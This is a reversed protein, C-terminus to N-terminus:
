RSRAAFTIMGLTAGEVVELKTDPMVTLRDVAEEGGWESIALGLRRLRESTVEPGEYKLEDLLANLGYHEVMVGAALMSAAFEGRWFVARLLGQAVPDRRDLLALALEVNLDIAKTDPFAESFILRDRQVDLRRVAKVALLRIPSHRDNISDRLPAAFVSSGRKIAGMLLLKSVLDPLDDRRVLPDLHPALREDDAVRALAAVFFPYDSDTPDGLVEILRAEATADGRRARAVWATARVDAARLPDTLSKLDESWVSLSSSGCAFALKRQEGIKGALKERVWLRDVEGGSALLAYQADDNLPDVALIQQILRQARAENQLGRLADLVFKRTAPQSASWEGAAWLDVLRDPVRELAGLLREDNRGEVAWVVLYDDAVPNDIDAAARSIWANVFRPIGIIGGTMVEKWRRGDVHGYRMAAQWRLNMLQLVPPRPPPPAGNPIQVYAQAAEFLPNRRLAAQDMLERTADISGVRALALSLYEEFGKPNTDIVEKIGEFGFEGMEGLALIAVSREIPTGELALRALKPRFALARSAGVTMWATLRDELGMQPDDLERGARRGAAATFSIREDRALIERPKEASLLDLVGRSSPIDQALCVGPALVLCLVFLLSSRLIVTSHLIRAPALRPM